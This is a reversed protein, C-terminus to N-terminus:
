NTGKPLKDQIATAIEVFDQPKAVGYILATDTENYNLVMMFDKTKPSEGREVAEYIDWTM